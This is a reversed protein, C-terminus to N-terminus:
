RYNEVKNISVIQDKTFKKGLIKKKIEMVTKIDTNCIIFRHNKLDQRNKLIFNFNKIKFGNIKLNYFTPNEDIIIKKSIKKKSLLSSLTRGFRGACFLINNNGEDIIKRFEINKKIIGKLYPYKKQYLRIQFRNLLFFDIFLVKKIDNLMIKLVKNQYNFKLSIKKLYNFTKISNMLNKVNLLRTESNSTKLSYTCLYKKIKLFKPKCSILMAIFIWDECQHLNKFYIKNNKVFKRKIIIRWINWKTLNSNTSAISESFIKEQKTKNIKPKIIFNGNKIM